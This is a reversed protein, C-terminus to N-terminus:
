ADAFEAARRVHHWKEKSGGPIPAIPHQTAIGRAQNWGDVLSFRPLQLKRYRREYGNDSFIWTAESARATVTALGLQM